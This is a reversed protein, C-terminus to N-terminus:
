WLIIQVLKISKPRSTRSIKLFKRHIKIRKSNDGRGKFVSLDEGELSSKHWTQNFNAWHNQVFIRLHGWGM